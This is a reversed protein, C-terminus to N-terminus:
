IKVFSGCLGAAGVALSGTYQSRYVSAGRAGARQALQAALVSARRM